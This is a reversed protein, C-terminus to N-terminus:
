NLYARIREILKEPPVAKDIHNKLVQILDDTLAPRFGLRFGFEKILKEEAPDIHGDSKMFFLFYYLIMIRDKEEAPPRLPYENRHDDIEFVDQETLGLQQAVHFIYGLESDKQIKDADRLQFLLAIIARKALDPTRIPDIM